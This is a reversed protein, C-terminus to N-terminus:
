LRGYLFIFIKYYALIMLIAKSLFLVWSGISIYHPMKIDKAQDETIIKREYENEKIYWIIFVNIAKWFYASYDIMLCLVIFLLATDLGDPLLDTTLDKGDRVNRFIWILAIGAFSLNRTIEHIRETLAEFTVLWEKLSKKVAEDAM